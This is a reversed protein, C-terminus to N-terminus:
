FLLRLVGLLQRESGIQTDTIQGFNGATIDTNPQKYVPHNAINFAEARFELKFRETLAFNKFMSLDVTRAGPGILVNRGLTGQRLLV